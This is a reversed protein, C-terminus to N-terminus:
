LQEHDGTLAGRLGRAAGSEPRRGSAIRAQGPAPRSRAKALGARFVTPCAGSRTRPPIAASRVPCRNVPPGAPRMTYVVCMLGLCSLTVM